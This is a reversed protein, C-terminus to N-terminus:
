NAMHATARQARIMDHSIRCYAVARITPSAKAGM